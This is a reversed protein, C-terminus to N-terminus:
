WCLEVGGDSHSEVLSWLCLELKCDCSLEVRSYWCMWHVM